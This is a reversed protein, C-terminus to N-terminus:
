GVSCFTTKRTSFVPGANPLTRSASMPEPLSLTVLLPKGTKGWRSRWISIGQVEDSSGLFTVRCKFPTNRSPGIVVTEFYSERVLGHFCTCLRTGDYSRRDGHQQHCEKNRTV